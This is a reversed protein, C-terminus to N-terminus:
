YKAFKLQSRRGDEDMLTLFYLGTELSEISLKETTLNGSQIQKGDVASISFVYHHRPDYGFLTIEDKAPNPYLTFNPKQEVENVATSFGYTISLDDLFLVSGESEDLTSPVIIFKASDPPTITSPYNVPWTFKTYTDTATPMEMFSQGLYQGDRYLALFIRFQDAGNPYYKYFGEFGNIRGNLPFKDITPDNFADGMIYGSFLYTAQEQNDDVASTLKVAYNGTHADTTMEVTQPSNFDVRDINSSNWEVPNYIRVNNLITLSDWNEFGANPIQAWLPASTLALAITYINKNM